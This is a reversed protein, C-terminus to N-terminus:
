LSCATLRGFLRCIILGKDTPLAFPAPNPNHYIAPRYEVEHLRKRTYLSAAPKRGPGGHPRRPPRTEPEPVWLPPTDPPLHFSRPLRDTLALLCFLPSFTKCVKTASTAAQIADRYGCARVRKLVAKVCSHVATRRGVAAFLQPSFLDHYHDAEQLCVIDANAELIKAVLAPGRALPKCESVEFSLKLVKQVCRESQLEVQAVESWM